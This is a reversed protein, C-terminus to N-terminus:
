HGFDLCLTFQLACGRGAGNEHSSLKEQTNGLSVPVQSEEKETGSVQVALSLLEMQSGFRRWKQSEMLELYLAFNGNIM